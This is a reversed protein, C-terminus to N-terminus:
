SWRIDSGDIRIQVIFYSNKSFINEVANLVMFYIKLLIEGLGILPM